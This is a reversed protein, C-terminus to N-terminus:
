RKRYYANYPVLCVRLLVGQLLNRRGALEGLATDILSHNRLKIRADRPLHIAAM